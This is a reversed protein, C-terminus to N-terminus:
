RRDEWTGQSVPAEGRIGIRGVDRLVYEETRRGNVFTGHIRDTGLAEENVVQAHSQTISDGPPEFGGPRDTGVVAEERRVPFAQIFGSGSSV